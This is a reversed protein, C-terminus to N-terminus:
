ISTTAVWSLAVLEPIHIIILNTGYFYLNNIKM